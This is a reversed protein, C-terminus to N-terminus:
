IAIFIQFERGALMGVNSQSFVLTFTLAAFEKEIILALLFNVHIFSFAEVRNKIIFNPSKVFKVSTLM